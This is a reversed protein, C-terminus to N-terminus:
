RRPPGFSRYLATVKEMVHAETFGALIRARAARGAEAVQKHDEALGCIRDALAPANDPPVLWGEKGERIFDRCGPVDTTLIARGCAGAELISRPLGEGGRTPLCALDHAAWVERVDTTAGCWAIGPRQSWDKLINESLSRPNSPDPTGFLSLSVDYGRARSLSVAEVALDAGKSWVMRSVMAIKLGEGEPLPKSVYFDPDVGAGPLITVNPADSALGFSLPDTVNEFLFRNSGRLAILRIVNRLFGRSLGATFGKNATLLGGGTVALVRNTVGALNAALGGLIISRLAICHVIDVRERRLINAMRLVSAAVALPGINRREINLRVVRAGLEELTERHRNVRTVIIPDLGADKAARLMPLFHSVFFWDESVVFAIRMKNPSM